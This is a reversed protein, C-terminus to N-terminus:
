TTGAAVGYRSVPGAAVVASGAACPMPLAAAAPRRAAYRARCAAARSGSYMTGAATTTSSASGSVGVPLQVPGRQGGRVVGRGRRAPARGRDVSSIMQAANASTSPQVPDAGVIVEEGEAAVRQQRHRSASRSRSRPTCTATRASNSAGVGAPSARRGPRTRRDLHRRVQDRGPARLDGRLHQRQHLQGGLLDAPHDRPDVAPRRVHGVDVRQGRQLLAHEEVM